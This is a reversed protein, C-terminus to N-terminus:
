GGGGSVPQPDINSLLGWLADWVVAFGVSFLEWLGLYAIVGILVLWFPGDLIRLLVVANGKGQYANQFNEFYDKIDRAPGGRFWRYKFGKMREASRFFLAAVEVDDPTEGKQVLTMLNELHQEIKRARVSLRSYFYNICLSVLFIVLPICGYKFAKIHESEDLIDEWFYGASLVALTFLLSTAAMRVNSYHREHQGAEQYLALLQDLSPCAGRGGAGARVLTIPEVAVENSAPDISLRIEGVFKQKGGANMDLAM